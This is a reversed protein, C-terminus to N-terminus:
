DLITIGCATAVGTDMYRVFVMKTFWTLKKNVVKCLGQLQNLMILLSVKVAFFLWVYFAFPDNAEAV